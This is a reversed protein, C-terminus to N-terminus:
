ILHNLFVVGAVTVVGLYSLGTAAMVGSYGTEGLAFWTGVVLATSVLALAALAWGLAGGDYPAAGNLWGAALSLVLGAGAMLDLRRVAWRPLTPDVLFWHGLLMTSTIGGLAAAAAVAAMWGVTLASSFLVLIAGPLILPSYERRGSRLVAVVLLLLGAAAWWSRIAPYIMLLASAAGGLMQYGRKAVKWRVALPLTFALGAAWAAMFAVPGFTAGTPIM